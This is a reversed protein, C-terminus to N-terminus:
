VKSWSLTKLDLRYTQDNDHYGPIIKGGTLIIEDVDLISRHRSIWGPADGSTEVPHISFDTLDLRLVQTVGEQRQELYGLSGILWIQDDYLTATHFDTPPFVDDPYIFHDVGGKGDLVTVDAYICFDPDYHDEHEGGILVLRGDPLPTASRGYRSFSWVPQNRNKEHEIDKPASYRGTRLQECWFKPLFREPNERGARRSRNSYFDELTLTKEPLFWLPVGSPNVDYEFKAPHVGFRVFLARMLESAAERVPSTYDKEPSGFPDAGAVLLAEATAIDENDVARELAGWGIDDVADPDFGEGLLWIVIDTARATVAKTIAEPNEKAGADSGSIYVRAADLNGVRCAFLFPDAKGTEPMPPVGGMAISVQDKTWTTKAGAGLLTRMAELKGERFCVQFATMGFEVPTADLNEGAALHKRLASNLADGSLTIADKVLPPFEKWRERDDRIRNPDADLLGHERLANQVVHEEVELSAHLESNKM